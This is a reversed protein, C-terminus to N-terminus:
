TVLSILECGHVSVACAPRSPWRRLFRSDRCDGSVVVFDQSPRVTRKAQYKPGFSIFMFGLSPRGSAVVLEKFTKQQLVRKKCPNKVLFNNFESRKEDDLLDMAARLAQERLEAVLAADCRRQGAAGVAGVAEDARAANDSSAATSASLSIRSRASDGIAHAHTNFVATRLEERRVWRALPADCAHAFCPVRSIFRFVPMALM